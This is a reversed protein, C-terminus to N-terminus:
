KTKRKGCLEKRITAEHCSLEYKLETIILNKLKEASNSEPFIEHDGSGTDVTHIFKDNIVTFYEIDEAIQAIRKYTDLNKM